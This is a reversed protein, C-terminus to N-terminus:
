LTDQLKQGIKEALLCDNIQSATRKPIIDMMIQRGTVIMDTGDDREYICLGHVFILVGIIRTDILHQWLHSYNLRFSDVLDDLRQSFSETFRTPFYLSEIGVIKDINLAILGRHKLNHGIKAQIQGVATNINAEIRSISQFRKCQV